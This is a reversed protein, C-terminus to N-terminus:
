SCKIFDNVIILFSMMHNNELDPINTQKVGVGMFYESVYDGRQTIDLTSIVESPYVKALVALLGIMM